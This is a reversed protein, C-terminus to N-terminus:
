SVFRLADLVATADFPKGILDRGGQARAWVQDARQNKTSVFVVPIDRTAADAGLRRCAQLGDMGPMMIDMFVIAPRESRATAVAQGGDGAEIVQWGAGELITALRKRDSRQDDVVLALRQMAARTGAPEGIMDAGADGARRRAPARIPM